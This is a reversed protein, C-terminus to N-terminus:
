YMVAAALFLSAWGLIPRNRRRFLDRERKALRGCEPCRLSPTAAMDYWCKPCRRRGRSPDGILLRLGLLLTLGTIAWPLVRDAIDLWSNM